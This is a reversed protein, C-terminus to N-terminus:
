RYRNDIRGGRSLSAYTDAPPPGRRYDEYSGGPPAYHYNSPVTYTPYDPGGPAQSYNIPMTGYGGVGTVSGGGDLSMTDSMSPMVTRTPTPKSMKMGQTRSLTPM